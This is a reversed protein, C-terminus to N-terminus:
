NNKQSDLTNKIAKYDELTNANQLLEASVQITKVTMDDLAKIPRYIGRKYLDQLIPLSKSEWICVLPEPYPKGIGQLATAHGLTDRNKLLIDILTRDIFPIDTALVLFSDEPYLELASLLAGFPGLGPIKDSIQYPYAVQNSTRVSVFVTDVKPALLEQLYKWQPKGHYALLSKDRGMRKSEGGILILGHLHGKTNHTSATM